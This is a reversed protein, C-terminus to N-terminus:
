KKKAPRKAPITIGDIFTEWGGAHGDPLSVWHALTDQKFWYSLGKKVFYDFRPLRSATLPFDENSHAILFPRIRNFNRQALQLNNTNIAKHIDKMDVLSLLEAAFDNKDTSSDVISVCFRAMAMVFSTLSYNRLWFNSLTRYELGHEPTRYEGAKGYVARRRKNGKDRDILVCTNGLVVDLVQIVQEPKSRLSAGDSGYTGLHIHGGASRYLYTSPNVTITGEKGELALNKSPACGFVRSKEDLKKLESKTIKVTPSFNIKLDPDTKMKGYLERFCRSIDNGLRARCTDPRPNLEVQVGDVICKTKTPTNSFQYSGGNGDKGKIKVELGNKIDIVKEAGIIKGKKEFFFEPDCGLMITSKQITATMYNIQM